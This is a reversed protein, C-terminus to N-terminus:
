FGPRPAFAKQKDEIQQQCGRVFEAPYGDCFSEQPIANNQAWQYGEEYTTCYDTCAAVSIAPQTACACLLCAPILLLTKLTM